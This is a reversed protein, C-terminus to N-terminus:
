TSVKQRKILSEIGPFSFKGQWNGTQREEKEQKRGERLAATETAAAM